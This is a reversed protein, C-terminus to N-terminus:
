VYDDNGWPRFGEVLFGDRARTVESAIGLEDIWVCNM